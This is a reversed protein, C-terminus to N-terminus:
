TRRIVKGPRAGTDAGDRWVATGGVYVAAIGTSARVPDEFTAEDKVTRPDVIVLDAIAGPAIVGRDALRFQGAPLSTMRRVAEEFSFLGVDRAYHGLVRTFTGWLRPHPRAKLPVGDSGIMADPHSLIRRVDAEDMMFYVAGGPSLRDLAQRETIGMERAVDSLDRGVTEPHPTSWTILVRTAAEWSGVNLMTSSAVYPYVDFGVAQETKARTLRPLTQRSRGFNQTGSLKHHSVVLRAKGRRAIDFAEELAEMVGDAETRIHATYIGDVAGALEVLALVEGAPAAFAPPYFLGSSVGIAGAELAEACRTRMAAIEAADAPRDLRDMTAARLTTHGVLCATNVAAPRDELVRLYDAFRAHVFDGPSGVESLPSPPAIDGALLLPALSVGCNGAIVTTVGQSTKFAMGPEALLAQDDHTHVDIFGPCLARGDLAVREKAQWGEAPGVAVIRGDTVAVAADFGPLGSGDVIRGGTFLLDCQRGSAAM